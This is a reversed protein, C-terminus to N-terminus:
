NGRLPSSPGMEIWLQEIQIGDAFSSRGSWGLAGNTNLISMSHKEPSMDAQTEWAEPVLMMM